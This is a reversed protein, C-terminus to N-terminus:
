PMLLPGAWILWFAAGFMSGLFGWVILQMRHQKVIGFTIWALVLSCLLLMVSFGFLQPIQFYTFLKSEDSRHSWDHKVFYIGFLAAANFVQRSIFYSLTIWFLHWTNYADIVQKRSLLMLCIIGIISTLLTEIPGGFTFLISKHEYVLLEQGNKAAHNLELCNECNTYAYHVSSKFGVLTGALWHGCEHKVTGAIAAIFFFIFIHANKM